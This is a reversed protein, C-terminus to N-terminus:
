SEEPALRDAVERPGVTPLTGRRCDQAPKILGLDHDPDGRVHVIRSPHGNGREHGHHSLSTGSTTTLEAWPSGALQHCAADQASRSFRSAGTRGCVSAGTTRYM